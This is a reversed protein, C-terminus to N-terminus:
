RELRDDPPNSPRSGRLLISPNSDIRRATSSLYRTTLHLEDITDVLKGSNRMMIMETHDLVGNLSELVRNLDYMLATLDVESVSSTINRIDALAAQLTDSALFREIAVATKRAATSTHKLEVTLTDLNMMTRNTRETNEDILRNVKQMVSKSEDAFEFLRAQNQASTMELLNNLVLEIKEAIVEAAGTIDETISKGAQIYGGPALMASEPTGGRLEIQKLGTIGVMMIEARVDEKIPTGRDVAITVIIRNINEPDIEIRRVNGVNLGLYRVQSGIDLGAVSVDEYAIYYKERTDFIRDFSLMGVALILVSMAVTIFIGLRVKQTRTVM